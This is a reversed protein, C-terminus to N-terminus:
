PQTGNVTYKLTDSGKDLIFTHLTRTVTKGYGPEVNIYTEDVGSIHPYAGGNVYVSVKVETDTLGSSSNIKSYATDSYTPFTAGKWHQAQINAKAGSFSVDKKYNSATRDQKSLTFTGTKETVAASAAFTGFLTLSAMIMCLFISFVKKKM